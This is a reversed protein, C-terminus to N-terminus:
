GLGGQGEQIAVDELTPYVTADRTRASRYTTGQMGPTYAGRLLYNVLGQEPTLAGTVFGSKFMVAVHERIHQTVPGELAMQVGDRQHMTKEAETWEDIPPDAIRPPEKGPVRIQRVM